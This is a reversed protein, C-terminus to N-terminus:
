SFFEIAVVALTPAGHGGFSAPCPTYDPSPYRYFRPRAIVTSNSVKSIKRTLLTNREKPLRNM